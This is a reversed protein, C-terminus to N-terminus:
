CLFMVEYVIHDCVAFTNYLDFLPLAFMISFYRNEFAETGRKLAVTLLVIQFLLEIVQNIINLVVQFSCIETCENILRTLSIHNMCLRNLEDCIFENTTTTENESSMQRITVWLLKIRNNISRYYYQGSLICGYFMNPVVRVVMPSLIIFIGGFFNAYPSTSDQFSGAIVLVNYLWDYILSKLLFMILHRMYSGGDRNRPYLEYVGVGNILLRKVKNQKFFCETYLTIYSVTILYVFSDDLLDIVFSTFQHNLNSYIHFSYIFYLISTAFPFIVSYILVFPNTSFTKSKSDFYYPWLGYLKITFMTLTKIFKLLNEELM